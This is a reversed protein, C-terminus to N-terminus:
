HVIVTGKMSPHIMCGYTYTGPKDFTHSFNAGPDLISSDFSRDTATVTHPVADTNTWTVTTGATIEIQDPHFGFDHIDVVCGPGQPSAEPSAESTAESTAAPSATASAEPSAGAAAAPCPKGNAPDGQIALSGTSSAMLAIAVVIALAVLRSM